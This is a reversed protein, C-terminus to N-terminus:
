VVSRPHRGSARARLVEDHATSLQCVVWGSSCPQSRPNLRPLTDSRYTAAAYRIASLSRAVREGACPFHVFTGHGGPCSEVAQKLVLGGALKLRKNALLGAPRMTQSSRFLTTYPFLTSRPPRRIM